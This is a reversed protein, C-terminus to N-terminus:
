REGHIRQIVIDQFREREPVTRGTVEFTKLFGNHMLHLQYDCGGAYNVRVLAAATLKEDRHEVFVNYLPRVNPISADRLWAEVDYFDSDRVNAEVLFEVSTVQSM